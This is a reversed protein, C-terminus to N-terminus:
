AYLLDGSDSAVVRDIGRPKVCAERFQAAEGAVGVGGAKEGGELGENGGVFGKRWQLVPAGAEPRRSRARQGRAEQGPPPMGGDGRHILSAQTARGANGPSYRKRYLIARRGTEPM